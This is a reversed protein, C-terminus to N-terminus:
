RSLSDPRHRSTNSSTTARHDVPEDVVGFGDGEPDTPNADVAANEFASWSSRYAALVASSTSGLTAWLCVDLVAPERCSSLPQEPM